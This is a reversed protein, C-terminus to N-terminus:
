SNRPSVGTSLHHSLSRISQVSVRTLMDAATATRCKCHMDPPFCDLVIASAIFDWLISEPLKQESCLAMFSALHRQFNPPVPNDERTRRIFDFTYRPSAAFDRLAMDFFATLHVMSFLTHTNVRELRAARIEEGLVEGLGSFNERRTRGLRLVNVINLSAFSDSFTSNSLVRLRFRLAESHFDTGHISTVVVLRPRVSSPLSSASGIATWVALLEAVMDIGGCDDAFICLVDTFLSLLRAHVHYVLDQQTPSGNGDDSWSVHHTITEHCAEKVRPNSHTYEPSSDTVLIPYDSNTSTQDVCINAIGSRRCGSIGSGPFLARLARAKSRKGIFSILSPYQRAPHPLADTINYLRSGYQLVFSDEDESLRLWQQHACSAMLYSFAPRKLQM